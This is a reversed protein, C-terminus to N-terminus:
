YVGAIDTKEETRRAEVWQEKLEFVEHQVADVKRQAALVRGLSQITTAAAETVKKARLNNFVKQARIRRALNQLAQLGTL